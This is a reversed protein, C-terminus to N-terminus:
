KQGLLASIRRQTAFELQTKCKQFPSDQRKGPESNPQL